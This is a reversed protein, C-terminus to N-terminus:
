RLWATAIPKLWARLDPTFIGGDFLFFHSNGHEL